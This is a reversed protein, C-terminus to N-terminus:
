AQSIGVIIVGKGAGIPSVTYRMTTNLATVMAGMATSITLATPDEVITVAVVGAAM